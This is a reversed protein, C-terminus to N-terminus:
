LCLMHNYRAAEWGIIALKRYIGWRYNGFDGTPHIIRHCPIIFAVPNHGIATGTARCAKRKDAMEAISGYTSLGGEPIRLLTKWIEMQFATGKIHLKIERNGKQETNFVSLADQQLTDTTRHLSANPFLASFAKLSKEPSDTFELCCVGKHTSAIFIEGFPSTECSFNIQLNKGGNGYEAPTMGEISVLTNHPASTYAPFTDSRNESLQLRTRQLINRIFDTHLYQMFQEVSTGSWEHFIHRFACPEMGTYEATKEASPLDKRNEWMFGIASAIKDFSSHM